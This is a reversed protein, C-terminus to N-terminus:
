DKLWLPYPNSTAELHKWIRKALKRTMAIDYYANHAREENWDLGFQSCVNGLQFNNFNGRVPAAFWAALDMVDLSPNWFYAGFSNGYMRDRETKAEKIFWKRLFEEDFKVNYGILFAKDVKNFKDIYKNLLDIFQEFVTSPNEFTQAKEPTIGTKDIADQSWQTNSYPQLLYNFKEKIEGDIEICGALQLLSCTEPDFGTTETDIWIIKHSM